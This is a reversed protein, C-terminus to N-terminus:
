RLVGRVVTRLGDHESIFDAVSPSYEYYLDVLQSGLSNELLMEDRFARLTDLEEATSTGYAAMAVFCGATEGSPEGIFFWSLYTVYGCVLYNGTDVGTTVDRWFGEWHFLKLNEPNPTSPDYPICVEVGPQDYTADTTVGVFQGRLRFGEPMTPYPNGQQTTCTTNGEATVNGFTVVACSLPVNVNPGIPTNPTPLGSPTYLYLEWDNGDYV